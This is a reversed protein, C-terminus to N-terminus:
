AKCIDAFVQRRQKNVDAIDYKKKAWEYLNEGLQKRKEPNLILDKIHIFWDKQSNVWLVPCDKDENYPLVNSVICPIKKAAAELIKLNSKMGHWETNELPILMIDANAYADMYNIPLAGRIKMYPLSGGSTFASFMRGWVKKSLWDEDHYGALVMQIDNKFVSLKKIPNRLLEMDAEHSAGGAWFIRIKDSTFKDEHFQNHGYPIANKFVHVNKNFPLIKDALRENTCTVADAQRLNNEIIPAFKEKYDYYQLHNAPLIWHDDLDMIVKTNPMANRFVSWDKDYVSLRNFYLIDWGENLIEPTPYNTVFGHIDNMYGLPLLIRHYGCGSNQQSLGLIRM